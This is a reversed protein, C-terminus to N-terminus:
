WSSSAGGGGSDGGGFGGFGGGSSGGGGGGGGFGGFGGGGGWFIGPGGGGRYGGRGGGARNNMAGVIKSLVITGMVILFLLVPFPIPMSQKFGRSTVAPRTGPDALEVGKGKSVAAGMAQAAQLLAGGYDGGQLQPRMGRLIGGVLGDPLYQELGYGVEVRSKKDNIVLVLMVGESSGKQGIGWNHFLKQSWDEIAQDGLTPITVLAIQVGTAREFEGCYQVIANRNSADVSHAFDSLYGEPKLKAPDFAEGEAWLPLASLVAFALRYSSFKFM